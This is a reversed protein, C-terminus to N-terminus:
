PMPWRRSSSAKDAFRYHLLGLSVGAAGAVRRLSVDGIGRDEAVALAAELLQTRRVDASLRPM